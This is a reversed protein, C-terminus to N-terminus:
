LIRQLVTFIAKFVRMETLFALPTRGTALPTPEYIMALLEYGLRVMFLLGELDIRFSNELAEKESNLRLSALACPNAIIKKTSSRSKAGERNLGVLWESFGM